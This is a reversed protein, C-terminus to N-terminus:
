KSAAKIKTLKTELRGILKAAQDRNTAQPDQPAAAGLESLLGFISDLQDDTAPQMTWILPNKMLVVRACKNGLTLENSEEGHGVLDIGGCFATHWKARCNGFDFYGDYAANPAGISDLHDLSTSGSDSSSYRWGRNYWRKYEPDLQALQKKTISTTNM